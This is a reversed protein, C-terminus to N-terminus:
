LMQPRSRYISRDASIALWNKKELQSLHEQDFQKDNFVVTQKTLVARLNPLSNHVPPDRGALEPFHYAGQFVKECKVNWLITEARLNYENEEEVNDSISIQLRFEM